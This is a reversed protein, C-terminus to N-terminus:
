KGPEQGPSEHWLKGQRNEVHSFHVPGAQDCGQGSPQREGTEGAQKCDLSGALEACLVGVVSLPNETTTQSPLPSSPTWVKSFPLTGGIGPRSPM